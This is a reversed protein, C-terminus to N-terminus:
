VFSHPYGRRGVLTDSCLLRRPQHNESFGITKAHRSSPKLPRIPVGSAVGNPVGRIRAAAPLRDSVFLTAPVMVNSRITVDGSRADAIRSASNDTPMAPM